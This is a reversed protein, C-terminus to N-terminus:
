SSTVLIARTAGRVLRLFSFFSLLFSSVPFSSPFFFSFLLLSLLLFSLTFFSLLFSSVPFSSLFILSYLFSFARQAALTRQSGVVGVKEGCGLPCPVLALACTEYHKPLEAEGGKLRKLCFECQVPTVPGAAAASAEAVAKAAASNRPADDCHLETQFPSFFPSSASTVGMGSTGRNCWYHVEADRM